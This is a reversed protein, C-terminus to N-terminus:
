AWKYRERAEEIVVKFLEEDSKPLILWSACFRDSYECWLEHAEDLTIKIGKIKFVEVIRKVDEPFRFKDYDNEKKIYDRLSIM